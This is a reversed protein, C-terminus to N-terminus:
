NRRTRGRKWFNDYILQKLRGATNKNQKERRQGVFLNTAKSYRTKSIRASASRIALEQGALCDLCATLITFCPPVTWLCHFWLSFSDRSTYNCEQEHVICVIRTDNEKSVQLEEAEAGEQLDEEEDEERETKRTVCQSLSSSASLPGRPSGRTVEPFPFQTLRDTPRRGAVRWEISRTQHQDHTGIREITKEMEEEDEGEMLRRIFFLLPVSSPTCGVIKTNAEDM